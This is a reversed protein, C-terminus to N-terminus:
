NRGLTFSAGLDINALNADELVILSNNNGLRKWPDKLRAKPGRVKVLPHGARSFTLLQRSFDLEGDGQVVLPGGTGDLTGTLWDAYVTGGEILSSASLSGGRLVFTGGSHNLTVTSDSYYETLGGRKNITDCTVGRGILLDADGARNDVWGLLATSLTVTEGAYRAIDMSGRNLYLGTITGGGIQVSRLGQEAPSGTRDVRIERCTGTFRLKIRGSRCSILVRDTTGTMANLHLYDKRYEAYGGANLKPLGLTGSFGEGFTLKALSVSSQNLGYLIDDDTNDILVDDGNAPVAGDSWNDPDDWHAPGSSATIATGTSSAGGNITGMASNTSLTVAFPVGPTDATLRFDTTGDRSATAEAFQPYATSDLANWFAVLNDVITQITTSGATTTVAVNGITFTIQDNANWTGGLTWDTVQAIAPAGGVWYKSAM